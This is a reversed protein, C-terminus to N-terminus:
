RVGDQTMQELDRRCDMVANALDYDVRTSAIAEVEELFDVLRAFQPRETFSVTVRAEAM